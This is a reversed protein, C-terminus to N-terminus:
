FTSPEVKRADKIKRKYSFYFVIFTILPMTLTYLIWSGFSFQGSHKEVSSAAYEFSLFNSSFGTNFNELGFIDAIPQIYSIYTYLHLVEAFTAFNFFALSSFFIPFGFFMFIIANKNSLYRAYRSSWQDWELWPKNKIMKISDKIVDIEYDNIDKARDIEYELQSKDSALHVIKKNLSYALKGDSSRQSFSGDNNKKLNGLSTIESKLKSIKEKIVLIKKDISGVLKALEDKLNQISSKLNKIEKHDTETIAIDFSKKTLINLDTGYKKRIPRPFILVKLYALINFIPWIIIAGAILVYGVFAILALVLVSGALQPM